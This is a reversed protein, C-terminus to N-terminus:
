SVTLILSPLLVFSTSWYKILSFAEMSPKLSISGEKFSTNILSTSPDVAV